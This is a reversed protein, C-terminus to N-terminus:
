KCQNDDDHQNHNQNMLELLFPISAAVNSPLEPFHSIVSYLINAIMTLTNPLLEENKKTSENTLNLNDINGNKDTRDSNETESAASGRNTSFPQGNTYSLLNNYSKKDYPLEPTIKPRPKVPRSITVRQSTSPSSLTEAYSKGRRPILSSAERYSMNDRAMIFKVEKERQFMPCSTDNAEHDGSCNICKEIGAPSDCVSSLHNGACKLCRPLSRCSKKIHGFRGCAYCQSTPYTYLEVRLSNHFLYINKPLIQGEFTFVCTQSKVWNTEGDLNKGDKRNLRRIKLIKGTSDPITVHELIDEETLDVDIGKVVGMKTLRFVPLYAKFSNISVFEGSVFNNAASASSFTLSIRNRGEKRVGGPIIGKINAKHLLRGFNMPRLPKDEINQVYVMFPGPSTSKYTLHIFNDKKNPPPHINDSSLTQIANETPAKRKVASKMTIDNELDPPEKEEGAM